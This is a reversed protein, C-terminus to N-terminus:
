ESLGECIREEQSEYPTHGSPKALQRAAVITMARVVVQPEVADSLATTPAPAQLPLSTSCGALVFGTAAAVSLRAFRMRSNSVRRGIPRYRPAHHPLHRLQRALTRRRLARRLAGALKLRM